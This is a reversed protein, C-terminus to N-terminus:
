NIMFVDTYLEQENPLPSNKAFEVADLVRNIVRQEIEDLTKALNADRQMLKIKVTEIPDKQKYRSVEDNTRYQAPDSMSHGKYRYTKAEIIFPKGSSKVMESVVRIKSYCEDFDMGDIQMGEIGLSLGRQYLNANSTSREVSTGMAYVNNEIIYIVPLGWLAAMNMAEFFQGQNAAGDGLFTYCINKSKKYKCAFALGTGIPIQAGVIGHGGYFQGGLDFMHMSGGKGKSCGTARGLLESMVAKPDCGAALIHGHDRYSTISPDLPDKAMFTGVVLAEQGIYLHCFGGILGMGYLQGCREEFRRILLMQEYASLYNETTIIM